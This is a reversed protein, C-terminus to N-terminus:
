VQLGRLKVEDIRYSGQGNPGGYEMHIFCSGSGKGEKLQKMLDKFERIIELDIDPESEAGVIIELTLRKTM